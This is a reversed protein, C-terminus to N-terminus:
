PTSPPRRRVVEADTADLLDEPGVGVPEIVPGIVPPDGGLVVQGLPIQPGGDDGAFDTEAGLRIGPSM